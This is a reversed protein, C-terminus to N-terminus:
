KDNFMKEKGAKTQGLLDTKLKELCSFPYLFAHPAL